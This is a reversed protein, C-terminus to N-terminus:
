YTTKSVLFSARPEGFRRTKSLKQRIHPVLNALLSLHRLWKKSPPRKIEEWFYISESHNQCISSYNTNSEQNKNPPAIKTGGFHHGSMEQGLSWTPSISKLWINQIASISPVFIWHQIHDGGLKGNAFSTWLNSIGLDLCVLCTIIRTTVIAPFLIVGLFWRPLKSRGFRRNPWGLLYNLLPIRGLIAKTYILSNGELSSVYGM